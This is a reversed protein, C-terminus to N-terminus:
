TLCQKPSGNQEKFVICPLDSIGSSAILKLIVDCDLQNTDLTVTTKEEDLYFKRILFM